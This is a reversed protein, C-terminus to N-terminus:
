QAYGARLNQASTGFIPAACFRRGKQPLDSTMSCSVHFKDTESKRLLFFPVIQRLFPKFRHHLFAKSVVIHQAFIPM